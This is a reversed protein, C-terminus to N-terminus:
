VNKAASASPWCAITMPNHRDHNHTDTQADRFEEKFFNRTERLFVEQLGREFEKLYNHDMFFEPQWPLRLLFHREFVKLYNHEM